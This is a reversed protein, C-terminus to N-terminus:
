NRYKTFALYISLPTWLFYRTDNQRNINQILFSDTHLFTENRSQDNHKEHCIRGFRSWFVSHANFNRDIDKGGAHRRIVVHNLAM